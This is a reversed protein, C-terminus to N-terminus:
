GNSEDNVVQMFSEYIEQVFDIQFDVFENLGASVYASQSLEYFLLLHMWQAMIKQDGTVDTDLGSAAHVIQAIEPSMEWKDAIVTCLDFLSQKCLRQLITNYDLAKVSRLQDVESRHAGFLADCVIISAPLLTIASETNRNHLGLHKLIKEWNRGLSAQLDYFAHNTLTFLLWQKPTLLSLLYSYLIQQTSSIGLIGFIQALDSVEQRFGYIPRNILTKLYLKLAPDTEACKAAKTLDDERLYDLTQRVVSPAPPINQIYHAVEELTIVLLPM